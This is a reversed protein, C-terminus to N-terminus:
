VISSCFRPLTHKGVRCFFVTCSLIFIYCTGDKEQVFTIYKNCQIIYQWNIWYTCKAYNIICIINIIIIYLAFINVWIQQTPVIPPYIENEFLIRCYNLKRFLERIYIIEKLLKAFMNFFMYCTVDTYLNIYM